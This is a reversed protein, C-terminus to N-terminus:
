QAMGMFGKVGKDARTEKVAEYFEHKSFIQLIQGFISSYKNM